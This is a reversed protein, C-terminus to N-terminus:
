GGSRLPEHEWYPIRAQHPYWGSEYAFGAVGKPRIALLAREARADDMVIWMPRGAALYHGALHLRMQDEDFPSTLRLNFAGEKRAVPVSRGLWGSGSLQEIVQLDAQDETWPMFLAPLALWTGVWANVVQAVIGAGLAPISLRYAAFAIGPFRVLFAGEETVVGNVNDLHGSPTLATPVTGTWVTYSTTWGDSSGLLSLPVGALGGNAPTNGAPRDLAFGTVYRLRDCTATVLRAQNATVSQYRDNPARRGNALHYVEFGAAQEDAALTHNPYQLTSFVNEVMVAALGM